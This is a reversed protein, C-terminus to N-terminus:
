SMNSFKVATLCERYQSIVNQSRHKRGGIGNEADKKRPKQGRSCRLAKVAGIESKMAGIESKMTGMLFTCLLFYSVM